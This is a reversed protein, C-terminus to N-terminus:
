HAELFRRVLLVLAEEIEARAIASPPAVLLGRMVGSFAHTVV